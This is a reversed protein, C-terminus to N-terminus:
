TWMVIAVFIVTGATIWAAYWRLRGNETERLAAWGLDTLRAIGNYFSDIFDNKDLRAFWIVPRVFARDYLWDMSWDTFWFRHIVRGVAASGLREPVSRRRVFLLYALTLGLVFAIAAIGESLGESMGATRTEVVEPLVSHLLSTFATVNGLTAPINVFGGVISLAALVIVPLKM